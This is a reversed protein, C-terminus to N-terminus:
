PETSKAIHEEKWKRIKKVVKRYRYLPFLAYLVGLGLAIWVRTPQFFFIWYSGFFLAVCLVDCVYFIWPSLLRELCAHYVATRLQWIAFALGGFLAIQTWTATPTSAKLLLSLLVLFAVRRQFYNM